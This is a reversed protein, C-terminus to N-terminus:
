SRRSPTECRFVRPRPLHLQRSADLSNAPTVGSGVQTAPFLRSGMADGTHPSRQQDPKSLWEEIASREYVRGDEAFVADVPLEQTIPCLFEDGVSAIVGKAAEAEKKSSDLSLRLDSLAAEAALTRAESDPVEGGPPPAPAEEGPGSDQM